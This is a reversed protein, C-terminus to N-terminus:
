GRARTRRRRSRPPRPPRKGGGPGRYSEEEAETTQAPTQASPSVAQVRAPARAQSRRRSTRRWIWYYVPIMTAAFYVTGLVIITGEREALFRGFATGSLQETLWPLTWPLHLPNLVTLGVLVLVVVIRSQMTQM